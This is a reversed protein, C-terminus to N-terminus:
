KGLCGLKFLGYLTPAAMCFNLRPSATKNVGFSLMWILMSTYVDM